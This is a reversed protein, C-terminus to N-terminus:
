TVLAHSILLLQSSFCPPTSELCRQQAYIADGAENAHNNRFMIRTNNMIYVLSTDCFRLAGENIAQNGEFLIHGNDAEISKHSHKQILAKRICKHTYVVFPSHKTTLMLIKLLIKHIGIKLLVVYM